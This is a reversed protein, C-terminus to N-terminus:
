FRWDVFFFSRVGDDQDERGIYDLQYRASVSDTFAVRIGSILNYTLDSGDPLEVDDGLEASGGLKVTVVPNVAYDGEMWISNSIDGDNNFGM